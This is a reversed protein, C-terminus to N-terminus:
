LDKFLQKLLAISEPNNEEINFFYKLQWTQTNKAQKNNVQDWPPYVRIGRKGDKSNQTLIGKDALIQKPFVFQGFKDESRTTIIIFDFDDNVDFPVTIGAQNRKWITVFQGIKTPTIKANRYHILKGNLSFTSAAYESSEVNPKLDKLEFDCVTYVFDNAKMLDEYFPPLIPATKETNM